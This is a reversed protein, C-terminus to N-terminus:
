KKKFDFETFDFDPNDVFIEMSDVKGARNLKFTVFGQPLSPLAQFDITFTDYHWHKMEGIFDPSQMFQAYFKGKEEFVKVSDYLDCSYIGSYEPLDLSPKTNKVRSASLEELHKKTMEEGKKMLELIEKSWDKEVPNGLLVDLTQYMLPYYLSSLSNTLIVFGINKEPIFLTQSIMGDYGGNHSVIKYGMYDMLSWGLGYAKFHTSPFRKVSSMSVNNITQASQMEFIRASSLLSDNNFIGKQLNMQLWTGMENASSILSGAPGINDWDLWPIAKLKGNVYTHPQAVNDRNILEKVHLTSRNMGLPQLINEYVFEDWSQGTVVPIIEGATLYMINSYGFQERFGYTPKLYKAKSIIEKRSYNSGYWILDGAFTKLGSRHTLLDRITMTNSVYSDYLEFYPLYKVVKDDWSIKGQDVLMALATSTFAKTNSAVAFLTHADVPQQTYIDIVGYGKAFLLSDKTVLAIAMGPVNWNEMAKQYYLDLYEIKSRHVQAQVQLGIALMISFLFIKLVAKM